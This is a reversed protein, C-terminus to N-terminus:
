EHAYVSVILQADGLSGSGIIRSGRTAKSISKPAPVDLSSRLARWIVRRLM